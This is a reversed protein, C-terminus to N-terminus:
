ILPALGCTSVTFGHDQLKHKSEFINLHPSENVGVFFLFLDMDMDM